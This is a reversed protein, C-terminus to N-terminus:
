AIAAEELAQVRATLSAVQADLQKVANTLTAILPMLEIALRDEHEVVAIPLAVQM